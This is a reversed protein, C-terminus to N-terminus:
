QEKKWQKYHKIGKSKNKIAVSKYEGCAIMRLFNIFLSITNGRLADILSTM